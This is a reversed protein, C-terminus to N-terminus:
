FIRSTRERRWASDQDLTVERDDIITRERNDAASADLSLSVVQGSPYRVEIVASEFTDLGEATSRVGTATVSLPFGSGTLLHIGDLLPCGLNGIAGAGYEPYYRWNLFQDVSLPVRVAAGAQWDFFNLPEPLKVGGRKLV